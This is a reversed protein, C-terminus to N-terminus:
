HLIKYVLEKLLASNEASENNVGKTKLDYERLLSFIQMLKQPQYNRSAKSYDKVFYPPVGMAIAANKDSKDHLQHFMMVKNFYSFLSGLTLFVPNSKENSSLYNIIRNAQLVNKVGLAKQLEFVNFEKSIGIYKEVLSADILAGKEINLFLKELENVIRTLDNGIFESLLLSAHDDIRYSCNEVYSTIWSPIKNEYLPTSEFMVAHKAIAKAIKTRKDLSKYKYCLVLLTSLQPNTLYILFPNEDDEGAKSILNKVDQAEKVIVVQYNSMMPYRKAVSIMTLVDLERGYVITQNFEKETENLVNAEIYHTISDIFYNEDGYFFYVPHYVKNKLDRMIQEYTM